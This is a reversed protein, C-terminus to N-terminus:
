IEGIVLQPMKVLLIRDFFEQSLTLRSLLTVEPGFVSLVPLSSRIQTLWQKPLILDIQSGRKGSNKTQGM